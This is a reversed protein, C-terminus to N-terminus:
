DEGRHKSIFIYAINCHNQWQVHVCRSVGKQSKWGYKDGVITAM